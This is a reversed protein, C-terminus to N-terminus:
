PKLHNRFVTLLSHEFTAKTYLKNARNKAHESYATVMNPQLYIFEIAKALVEPSNDKLMWGCPEQEGIGMMEGIAGMESAIIPLGAHMSELLVLPFYDLQTPYVFVNAENFLQQKESGYAPGAIFVNTLGEKDVFAQIDKVSIDGDSGGIKLLINNGHKSKLIKMAELLTYVGKSRVLNSFFLLKMPQGHLIANPPRNADGSAIGNAVVSISLPNLFDVENVFKPSLCIVHARSFVARYLLRAFKGSENYGKLVGLGHLHLVYEQGFTRLLIVIFSDRIFAAGFPSISFYFASPRLDIISIFVRLLVGLFVIIKRLGFSGIEGISKSFSFPLPRIEFEQSLVMSELVLKNVVSVGHVPPPLPGLM